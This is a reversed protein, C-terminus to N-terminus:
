LNSFYKKPDASPPPTPIAPPPMPHDFGTPLELGNCDICTLGETKMIWRRGVMESDWTNSVNDIDYIVHEMGNSLYIVKNKPVKLILKVEQSRWKDNQAIRFTPEFELLSDTQTVYSTINRARFTAEKKDIGFASKIEVLQFSDTESAIIDVNIIDNFYTKDGDKEIYEWKFRGFQHRGRGTYDRHDEDLYKALNKVSLYLTDKQTLDIKQKVSAEEKFDNGVQVGVYIMIILGLIWLGNTTFKVIRNKQKIGLLFKIGCYIISLLPIGFLLFIGTVALESSVGAPFFNHALENLSFSYHEGGESFHIMNNSGFLCGLLIVMMIVSIIVFIVTFVKALVKMMNLFVDGVFDGAKQASSRVRERNEKSGMESGYKEARKKFDEFEESVAKSINDINVKEGRMELKEATTKAEPMIMWLIIYLVLGTGFLFFSLAFAGRLWIPDFDFYNGIGSCVGGLIKDDTDRFVRKRKGSSYSANDTSRKEEKNGTSEGAFEEPKGMISIVSEVDMMLVAQKNQSVKEQLMEAIRSEIDSMIEDKGDSDSFYSRITSLYRNLKDYADEEIHFIIGSLNMTITRNM